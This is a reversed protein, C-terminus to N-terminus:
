NEHVTQFETEGENDKSLKTTEIPKLKFEQKVM